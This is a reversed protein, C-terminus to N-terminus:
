AQGHEDVCSLEEADVDIGIDQMLSVYHSESILENDFLQKAREGYDGIILGDNGPKYNAPAYGHLRANRIVETKFQETYGKTALNLHVLRVLLASRSCSFYQEIKLLTSLSFRDKKREEPPVLSIIADRPLLLNAAFLDADYEIKDKKDFRGTDCVRSSFDQQLFLHYLEHFITFNQRGLTHAANVLIFRQDGIRIAMGSFSSSLSKFCTLVNLRILLSKINIPECIGLGNDTRFANARTELEYTHITNM